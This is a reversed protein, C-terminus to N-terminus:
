YGVPDFDMINVQYEYKRGNKLTVSVDVFQNKTITNLDIEPKWVLTPMGYGDVLDFVQLPIPTEGTQMTVTAGSLDQQLSFSWFPFIMMKPLNGEPPWAVFKEKYLNTDVSGSDDLAWIACANETSGHGLALGNPYLLWRRNGVSPNKSDAMFSTVAMTTTAGKTLLSYRAAHAGEDTYCRWRSDPEHSLNKNAEMMLASKQCWDNLEPDLYIETLGAQRRFYNIRDEVKQQTEADVEGPECNVSSGNWTFGNVKMGAVMEDKVRTMYYSYFFDDKALYDLKRAWLPNDPQANFHTLIVKKAETYDRDKILADIYKDITKQNEESLNELSPISKILLAYLAGQNKTSLEADQNKSILSARISNITESSGYREEASELLQTALFLSQSKAAYDIIVAYRAQLEDEEASKATQVIYQHAIYNSVATHDFKSFYKVLKWLVNEPKSDMFQDSKRYRSVDTSKSRAVKEEKFKILMTDLVDLQGKDFHNRMMYLYLANEKKVFFTDTPFYSLTHKIKEMMLSSPPLQKIQEKAVEKQFYDIKESGGFVKRASELYLNASDYKQLVWYKDAYYIYADSMLKDVDNGEAKQNDSWLIVRQYYTEAMTTDLMYLYCKGIWYIASMDENLEHSKQYYKIAKTFKNIKYNAAGEENNIKVYDNVLDTYEPFFEGEAKTRGKELAKIGDKLADPYKTSLFEDQIILYLVKAKLFYVEPNKRYDPDEEADEALNLARKLNNDDIAQSIRDAQANVRLASLAILVIFLCYKQLNKM